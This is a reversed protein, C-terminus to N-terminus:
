SCLFSGTYKTVAFYGHADIAEVVQARIRRRLETFFAEDLREDHESSACCHNHGIQYFNLFPDPDSFRAAHAGSRGPNLM